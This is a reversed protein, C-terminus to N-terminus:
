YDVGLTPAPVHHARELDRKVSECRTYGYGEYRTLRRIARCYNQVKNFRLRKNSADSHFEALAFTEVVGPETMAAGCTICTLDFDLVLARLTAHFRFGVLNVPPNVGDTFIPCGGCGSPLETFISSAEFCRLAANFDARSAFFLDIDKVPTGDYLSRFCGGAIFALPRVGAPLTNYLYLAYQAPSM